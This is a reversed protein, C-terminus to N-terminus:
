KYISLEFIKAITSLALLEYESWKQRQELRAFMIFGKDVGRYRLRYFLASQVDREALKKQLRPYKDKLNNLWDVVFLNNEDFGSMFEEDMHLWRLDKKNHIAGEPTWGFGVKGGEYIILIESLGFNQGVNGFTAEMSSVGGTLYNELMYQIIGIKDFGLSFSWSSGPDNHQQVLEGHMEPTYIVYRNRGKEKALYLMKDALQMVSKYSDGHDPFAAAGMSCTLSINDLKGAYEEEITMRIERMIPRLEAKDSIDKTVIMIEDGGLRGVVGKNGVAKNIIGTVTILVEDGFMHGYTDNVMKFHDLDFIIIYTTPCNEQAIVRQAFETIAAKNLMDLMPDKDSARNYKIDGFARRIDTKVVGYVMRGLKEDQVSSCKIKLISDHTEIRQNIMGAGMGMELEACFKRFEQESEPIVNDRTAAIWDTLTGDFVIEEPDFRFLTFRDTDSEYRLQMDGALGLYMRAEEINMSDRISDDM